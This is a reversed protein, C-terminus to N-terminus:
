GRYFTVGKNGSEKGIRSILSNTSRGYKPLFLLPLLFSFNKNQGRHLLDNKNEEGHSRYRRERHYPYWSSLLIDLPPNQNQRIEKGRRNQKGKLSLLRV